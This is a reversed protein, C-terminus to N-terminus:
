WCLEKECEKNLKKEKKKESEGLVNPLHLKEKREESKFFSIQVLTKKEELIEIEAENEIRSASEVEFM